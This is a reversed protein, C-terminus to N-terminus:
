RRFIYAPLQSIGAQIANTVRTMGDMLWLSVGDTEVIIPAYKNWDFPGHGALKFPDAV